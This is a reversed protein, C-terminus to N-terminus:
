HEESLLLGRCAWLGGLTDLPYPLQSSISPCVYTGTAAPIHLLFLFFGPGALWTRELLLLSEPQGSPASSCNGGWGWRGLEWPPLLCTPFDLVM